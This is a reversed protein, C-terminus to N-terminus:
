PFLTHVLVLGEEQTSGVGLRVEGLEDPGDVRL